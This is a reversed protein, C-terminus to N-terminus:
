TTCVECKCFAELLVYYFHNAMLMKTKGFTFGSQCM